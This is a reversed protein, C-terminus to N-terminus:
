SVCGGIAAATLQAGLAKAEERTLNVMVTLDLDSDDVSVRVSGGGHRLSITSGDMAAMDWAVSTLTVPASALSLERCAQVQELIETTESLAKARKERKEERKRAREVKRKKGGDISGALSDCLPKIIEALSPEKPTVGGGGSPPLESPKGCKCNDGVQGIWDPEFCTCERQGSM